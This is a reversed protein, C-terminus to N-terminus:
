CACVNGEMPIVNKVSVFVPGSWMSPDIHPTKNKFTVVDVKGRAYLVKKKEDIIKTFDEENIKSFITIGNDLTCRGYIIATKDQDNPIVHEITFYADSDPKYQERYTSFDKYEIYSQSKGSERFDIDVADVSSMANSFTSSNATIKKSEEVVSKTADSIQTVQQNPQQQQTVRNSQYGMNYAVANHNYHTSYSYKEKIDLVTEKIDVSGKLSFKLHTHENIQRMENEKPVTIGTRWLAFQLMIAESSFIYASVTEIMWLPRDSNRVINLTEDRADFWILAYAADIKNLISDIQDPEHNALLHCLAESDVETDAHKKHDENFTGNHVMVVKNDNWFPHANKDTVSGRTAARNHAVLFKGNKFSKDHIDKWEKTKLFESGTLTDKAIYVEDNNAGFVGTSDKGRLTDITVLTEFMDLEPKLFGRSCSKPIVAVLGCM